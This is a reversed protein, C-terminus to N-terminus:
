WAKLFIKINAAIDKLSNANEFDYPVEIPIVNLTGRKKNFALTSVEVIVILIVEFLKTVAQVCALSKVAIVVVEVTNIYM